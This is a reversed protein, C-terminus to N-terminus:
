CIFLNYFFIDALVITKRKYSYYIAQDLNTEKFIREKIKAFWELGTNKVIKEGYRRVERLPSKSM